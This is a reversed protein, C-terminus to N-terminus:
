LYEAEVSRIIQEIDKEVEPDYEAKLNSGILRALSQWFFASINGRMEQVIAYSTHGTERDILKILIRGQSITLDKLDDEFNAKIEEETRKTLAKRVAENEAKELMKELERFKVGALKAYPLVKLVDRRLKTYKIEARRNKFVRDGVINVPHLYVYPITDGDLVYARLKITDNKGQGLCLSVPFLIIVFLVIIIPRM